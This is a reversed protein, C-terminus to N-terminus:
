KSGGEIAYSKAGVRIGDSEYAYDNYNVIVITGGEYTIRKVGDALTEHNVVGKGRVKSLVANVDAYISAATDVWHFFTAGYMNNLATYKMNSADNWVFTFRPAAGFEILRLATDKADYVANQNIAEGAYDACGSLIMEYFPIEEDVIYYDNHSLPVGIFEDAYAFSYFNGGQVLLPYTSALKSLNTKTIEEAQVRDIVETRKRDSALSDGLDRLSIGTFDYKEFAEIFSDVYRGLFKPSLQDYLLEVYGFSATNYYNLPNVKGFAAIMGGGYYRSTEYTYNYRKSSFPVKQFLTDSYLKGGRSELTEALTALTAVNGLGSVPIIKDATDHYYGRNFWGQYNMIQNTVGLETLKQSIEAAQEYTTMTIQGQYAINFFFKRGNVSGVVDVFFPIDGGDTKATLVGESILRKREYRAMGTYGAYEDTLLTYRVTLELDAKPKEVVPISTTSGVGGFMDVSMANRLMFSANVYNYTNLKGAVSATIQALPAGNEIRVLVGHGEQEEKWIGFIPLRAPKAKDLTAYEALLPDQNYVYQKYDEASLRGNNFHIISGSGNPVVMYGDEDVGGAGFFPLLKISGISGGGMETIHGTPISAILSDHDLRYEVPVVFALYEAGEVGSDAEDRQRDEHTYGILELQNALSKQQAPTNIISEVLKMAGQVSGEAEWRRKLLGRTREDEVASLVEDLREEQIYIPIIGAKPTSDGLTYVFRIGGPISKLEIQRLLASMKYSSIDASKGKTDYYTVILQSKLYEKNVPNAVVDSDADTPNSYTTKGTRKDYVAINGMEANAYLKLTDNELALMYGDVNPNEDTLPTFETETEYTYYSALEDKYGDYNRFYVTLYVQYVGIIIIAAVIVAACIKTWLSFRSSHLNLLGKRM